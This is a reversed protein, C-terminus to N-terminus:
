EKLELEVTDGWEVVQATFDIRHPNIVLWYIYHHNPLWETLPTSSGTPKLTNLQVETTRDKYIYDETAVPTEGSYTYSTGESKFALDYKVKLKCIDRLTQPLLLYAETTKFPYDYSITSKYPDTMLDTSYNQWPYTTSTGDYAPHLEAENYLNSITINKLTFYALDKRAEESVKIRFEIKSLVHHFIFRVRDSITLDNFSGTSTGTDRSKPLNPVLESVAFDVQKKVDNNVKFRFTPLGTGNKELLPTVGFANVDETSNSYPYYAMFSLKDGEENPWYKLPSYTYPQNQGYNTAKQNHMFNPTATGSWMANDHYYAYVGISRGYIATMTAHTAANAANSNLFSRIKIKNIENSTDLIEDTIMLTFTGDKAAARIQDLMAGSLRFVCMSPDTYMDVFVARNLPTNRLSNIMHGGGDDVKYFDSDDSHPANGVVTTVNSIIESAPTSTTWEHPYIWIKSNTFGSPKSDKVTLTLETVRDLGPITYTMLVFMGQYYNCEAYINGADAANKPYGSEWATNGDNTKFNVDLVPEYTMELVSGDAVLTSDMRTLPQAMYTDFSIAREQVTTPTISDTTCSSLLLLGVGVRGQLSPTTVKSVQAFGRSLLTRVKTIIDAIFGIM